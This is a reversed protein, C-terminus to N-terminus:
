WYKKCKSLKKRWFWFLLTRLKREKINQPYTIQLNQIDSESVNLANRVINTNWIDPHSYSQNISHMLWGCNRDAICFMCSLVCRVFAPLNSNFQCLQLVNIEDFWDNSVERLLDVSFHILALLCQPTSLFGDKLWQKDFEMLLHNLLGHIKMAENPNTRMIATAPVCTM